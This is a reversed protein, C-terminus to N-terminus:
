RMSNTFVARHLLPQIEVAPLAAQWGAIQQSQGMRSCFFPWCGKARASGQAQMGAIDTASDRGGRTALSLLQM